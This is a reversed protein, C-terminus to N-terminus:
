HIRAGGNLRAPALEIRGEAAVGMEDAVRDLGIAIQRHQVHERAEAGPEIDDGDAFELPHQARAAIGPADHEGAHALASSIFRASSAPIRQKLTSDPGSNSRSFSTAPPRPLFAFAASRM